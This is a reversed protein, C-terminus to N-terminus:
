KGLFSLLRHLLKMVNDSPVIQNVPGLFATLLCILIIIFWHRKIHPIVKETAYLVTKNQVYLLYFILMFQVNLIMIMWRGFDFFMFFAAAQYLLVLVPLAFFLKMKKKNEQFPM